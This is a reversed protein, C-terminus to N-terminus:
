HGANLLTAGVFCELSANILIMSDSKLDKSPSNKLGLIVIDNENWRQIDASPDIKFKHGDSLELTKSLYSMEYISLPHLNLRPAMLLSAKVHAGTM